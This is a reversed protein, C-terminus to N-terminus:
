SIKKLTRRVTEYSIRDVVQLTVLRDALLQLTWRKHGQPPPGCREAILRAEGKGDLKPARSPRTQMKRNLAAELGQEVFRERIGAVTNPHVSLAVSIQMDRWAPGDPGEDAQLLVHAHLVKRAAAKGVSVLRQLDRREESTLRVVYRKSM